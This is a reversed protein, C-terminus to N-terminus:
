AGRGLLRKGATVLKPFRARLAPKLSNRWTHSARSRLTPRSALLGVHVREAKAWNRKYPESTGMLDYEIAEGRDGHDEIFRRLTFEKLVLGPSWDAADKRYGLKFNHLTGGCRINFEFAVPVGARMMISSYLTGEASAGRIVSEYFRRITPTSAMSTGNDHQWTHASIAMIPEIAETGRCIRMELDPMREAARLKRRLSQRFSSSLGDLVGPWSEPLPMYPSVLGDTCGVLMGQSRLLAPVRESLLSDAPRQELLLSDWRVPGTVLSQVLFELAEDDGPQLLLGSRDVWSNTLTSLTNPTRWMLPLAAALRDKRLVLLVHLRSETGFAQWWATLWSHSMTPVREASEALLDNWETAVAAFREPEDICELRLHNM